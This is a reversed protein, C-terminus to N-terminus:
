KFYKAITQSINNNIENKMEDLDLEYEEDDNEYDEFMETEHNNSKNMFKQKFKNSVYDPEFSDDSEDFSDNVFHSLKDMTEDLDEDPTTEQDYNMEDPIEEDDPNFKKGIDDRDDPDLNDLNVASIIMNLVYKIDDSELKEHQDRLEQGLKGAYKQIEAMYDSRKGSGNSMDDTSEDGYTEDPMDNSMDNTDTPTDNIEAPPLEPAAADVTDFSPVPSPTEEKTKNQKLVYKKGENIEDLGKILELQKLAESYSSFRNKRKMFLGGIYDLTDETLGKKVYYGDNEKVIGYVSNNTSEKVIEAKSPTSKNNTTNYFTLDLIRQLKEDGKLKESGIPKLEGM